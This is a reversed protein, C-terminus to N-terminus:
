GGEEVKKRKGMAQVLGLQKGRFSTKTDFGHNTIKDKDSLGVSERRESSTKELSFYQELSLYMELSDIHEAFGSAMFLPTRRNAFNHDHIMVRHGEVTHLVKYDNLDVAQQLVDLNSKLKEIDFSLGSGPKRQFELFRQRVKWGFDIFQLSILKRVKDFNKWTLLLELSYDTPVDYQSRETVELNFLWFTNCVQLLVFGDTWYRLARYIDECFLEKTLMYSDTRDFTLSKDPYVGQWFDYFDTNKDIIRM